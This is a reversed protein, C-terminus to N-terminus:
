SYDRTSSLSYTEGRGERQVEKPAQLVFGEHEEEETNERKKKGEEM